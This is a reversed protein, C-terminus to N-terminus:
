VPMVFNPIVVSLFNITQNFKIRKKDFVILILAIWVSIQTAPEAFLIYWAQNIIGVNDNVVNQCKVSVAVTLSDLYRTNTVNYDRWLAM